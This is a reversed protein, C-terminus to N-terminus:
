GDSHLTSILHTHTALVFKPHVVKFIVKSLSQLIDEVLDFSLLSEALLLTPFHAWPLM